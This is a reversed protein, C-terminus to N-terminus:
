VLDAPGDADGDPHEVANPGLDHYSELEALSVARDYIRVENYSANAAPDPFQSRGLWGVADDLQSLTL